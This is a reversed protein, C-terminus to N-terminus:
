KLNEYLIATCKLVGSLSSNFYHQSWIIFFVQQYAVFYELVAWRFWGTTVPFLLLQVFTCRLLFPIVQTTHWTNSNAAYAKNTSWRGNVTNLAFTSFLPPYTSPPQWHLSHHILVTTSAQPKWNNDGLYLDRCTFKTLTSTSETWSLHRISNSIDQCVQPLCTSSTFTVWAWISIPATSGSEGRHRWSCQPLIQKRLAPQPPRTCRM